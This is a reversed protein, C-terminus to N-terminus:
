QGEPELEFVVGGERQTIATCHCRAGSRDHTFYDGLMFKSDLASKDESIERLADFAAVTDPINKHWAESMEKTWMRPDLLTRLRKIEDADGM